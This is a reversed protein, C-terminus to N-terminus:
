IELFDRLKKSGVNRLKLRMKEKITRITNKSINQERAVEELTPGHGSDQELVSYLLPKCLLKENETLGDLLIGVEEEQIKKIMDKSEKRRTDAQAPTAKRVSRQKYRGLVADLPHTSVTVTNGYVQPAKSTSQETVAALIQKVRMRISVDAGFEKWSILVRGTSGEGHYVKGERIANIASRAPAWGRAKLTKYYFGSTSSVNISKAKVGERSMRRKVLAAVEDAPLVNLGDEERALTLFSPPFPPPDDDTRAKPYKDIGENLEDDPQPIALEELEQTVPLKTLIHADWHCLDCVIDHDQGCSTKLSWRKWARWAGCRGCEEGFPAGCHKCYHNAAHSLAECKECRIVPADGLPQDGRPELSWERYEEPLGHEFSNGAMDLVVCDGSNPKPRLGRGVMQLYLALSKTPRTMLVCGADPLDFGETAIAVNVLVKLEGIKFRYVLEARETDPTDSLLVGAPYGAHNFVDVLNRAHQKTVAYVVTQRGEGARQWFRLAGATWVERDRNVEEIGGPTYDGTRDVRGGQIREDGPLSLVRANCLWEDLQLDAIQPGCVLDYFLHDFGEWISLRWPTATMGLVPGPWLRIARSWGEAAAHHAEDVIMLDRENYDRWVGAKKIRRSVKQVMLIVVGNPITPARNVLPWPIDKTTSVGDKKLMGETQAVLEERHTLWVAKRGDKLWTSLLKGAIRTKGGGTPLQLMVRAQQSDQLASQARELLDEQYKRREMREM